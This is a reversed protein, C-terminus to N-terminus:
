ASKKEPQSVVPFIMVVVRYLFILAAIQAFCIVIETISPFYHGIAYPPMYATIYTDVRNLAIALIFLMSSFFLLGPSKRVASFLLMIFPLVMGIFFEVLFVHSRTSGEWMAGLQDRLALDILRVGIYLGITIPLSRALSSLAKM